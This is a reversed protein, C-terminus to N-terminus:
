FLLPLPLLVAPAGVRNVWASLTAAPLQRAAEDLAYRAYSGALGSLAFAFAVWCLLWGIRNGQGRSVILTGVTAFGMLAVPAVTYTFLDTQDTTALLSIVITGILPPATISWAAWAAACATRRRRCG